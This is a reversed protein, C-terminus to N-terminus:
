WIRGYTFTGFSGGYITRPNYRNWDVLNVVSEQLFISRTTWKKLRMLLKMLTMLM